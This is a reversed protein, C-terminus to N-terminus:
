PTGSDPDNLNELEAQYAEMVLELGLAEATIVLYTLTREHKPRLQNAQELAALAQAYSAPNNQEFFFLGRRLLADAIEDDFPSSSTNPHAGSRTIERGDTPTPKTPNGLVFVLTVAAATALTVWIPLKRSLFRPVPRPKSAFPAPAAPMVRRLDRAMNELEDEFTEFETLYQQVSPNDKFDKRRRLDKVSQQTLLEALAKEDISRKM